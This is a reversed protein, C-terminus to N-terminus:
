RSVILALAYEYKNFSSFGLLQQADSANLQLDPVKLNPPCEYTGSAVLTVTRQANHLDFLRVTQGRYKKNQCVYCQGRPPQYEGGPVGFRITDSQYAWPGVRRAHLERLERAMDSEYELGVFADALDTDEVRYVAQNTKLWNLAGAESYPRSFIKGLLTEDNAMDQDLDIALEADGYKWKIQTKRANGKQLNFGLALGAALCAVCAFIIGATKLAYPNTALYAFRYNASGYNLIRKPVILQDRALDGCEVRSSKDGGIIPRIGSM